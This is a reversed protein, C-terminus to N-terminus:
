ARFAGRNGGTRFLMMRDGERRHGIGFGDQLATLFSQPDATRFTGGLRTAGLGQDQVVLKVKLYRNFESIAQDLAMGQFMIEGREWATARSLAEPSLAEVHVDANSVALMSGANVTQASTGRTITAAQGSLVLLRALAPDIRLSFKGGSLRGDIPDSYLRFPKEADKVLLTAEGREIWFDRRDDDFRWAVRTDTNLMAQSGNQLRLIRREGVATEAYARRPWALFTGAGGVALLGAVGGAVARRSLMAPPAPVIEEEAETEELSIPDLMAPLRPDTTRRWTAAVQAFAAAHRPDASRWAEFAETDASGCDLAILWQIAEDSLGTGVQEQERM